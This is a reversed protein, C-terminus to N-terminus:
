CLKDIYEKLKSLLETKNQPSNQLQIICDEIDILLSQFQVEKEDVINNSIIFPEAEFYSVEFGLANAMQNKIKENPLLDGDLILKLKMKDINTKLAIYNKNICKEQLYKNYNEIFKSM